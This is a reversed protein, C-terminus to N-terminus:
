LNLYDCIWRIQMDYIKKNIWHGKFILQKAKVYDRWDQNGRKIGAKALIAQIEEKTRGEIRRIKKEDRRDQIEEDPSVSLVQVDNL